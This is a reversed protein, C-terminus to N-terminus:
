QGGPEELELARVAGRLGNYANAVFTLEQRAKVPLGLILTEVEDLRDFIEARRSDLDRLDTEAADLDNTTM